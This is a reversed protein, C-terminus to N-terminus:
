TRSDIQLMYAMWLSGFSVPALGANERVLMNSDPRTLLRSTRKSSSHLLRTHAPRVNWAANRLRAIVRQKIAYSKGQSAAPFFRGRDWVM